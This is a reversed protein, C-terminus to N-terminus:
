TETELCDKEVNMCLSVYEFFFRREVNIVFKVICENIVCEIIWLVHIRTDIKLFFPFLFFM